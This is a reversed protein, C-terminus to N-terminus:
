LGVAEIEVIIRKHEDDYSNYKRQFEDQDLTDTSNQSILNIVLVIIDEAKQNLAARKAELDSTNDLAQIMEECDEILQSRDGIFENYTYLAYYIHLFIATSFTPLQQIMGLFCFAKICKRTDFSNKKITTSIVPISGAVEDNRVIREGM